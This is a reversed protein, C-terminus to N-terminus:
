LPERLVAVVPEINERVLAPLLTVLLNEAGGRGLTDILHLVRIPSEDV